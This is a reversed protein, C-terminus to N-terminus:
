SGAETQQTPYHKHIYRTCIERANRNSNTFYPKTQILTNTRLHWVQIEIQFESVRVAIVALPRTKLRVV